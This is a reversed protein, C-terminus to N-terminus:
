QQNLQNLKAKATIYNEFFKKACVETSEYVVGVESITQSPTMAKTSELALAIIEQESLKM